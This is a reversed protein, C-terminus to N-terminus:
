IFFSILILTIIHISSFIYKLIESETKLTKYFLVSSINVSILSIMIWIIVTWFNSQWGKLLLISIIWITLILLWVLYTKFNINKM